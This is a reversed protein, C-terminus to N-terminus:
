SYSKSVEVKAQQIMVGMYNVQPRITDTITEDDIPADGDAPVFRAEVNLGDVYKKGALDVLEYGGEHLQDELRKLSHKLANLGKSEEDMFSIRKRMRHIEDAVRLPLSHDTFPSFPDAALVSGSQLLDAQTAVGATEHASAAEDVVKQLADLRSQLANVQDLLNRRTVILAIVCGLAVILLIISWTGTTLGLFASEADGAASVSQQAWAPATAPLTLLLVFVTWRICANTWNM